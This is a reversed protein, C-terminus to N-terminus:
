SVYRSDEFETGDGQDNKGRKKSNSRKLNENKKESKKKKKNRWDTVSFIRKFNGQRTDAFDKAVKLLLEVDTQDKGWDPIKHCFFLWLETPMRMSIRAWRGKKDVFSGDPNKQVARLNQLANKFFRYKQPYVKKWAELIELITAERGSRTHIEIPM